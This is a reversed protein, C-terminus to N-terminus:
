HSRSVGPKDADATPTKRQDRGDFLHAQIKKCIVQPRKASFAFEKRKHEDDMVLLKVAIQQDGPVNYMTCDDGGRRIGWGLFDTVRYRIVSCDLIDQYLIKRSFFYFGFQVGKNTITVKLSMFIQLVWLVLTFVIALFLHAADSTGESVFPYILFFAILLSFFSFVGARVWLPATLTEEYEVREVEEKSEQTDPTRRQRSKLQIIKSPEQKKMDIGRKIKLISRAFLYILRSRLPATLSGM